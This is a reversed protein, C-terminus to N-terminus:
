IDKKERRHYVYIICIMPSYDIIMMIVRSEPGRCETVVKVVTSTCCMTGFANRFHNSPIIARDRDLLSLSGAESRM